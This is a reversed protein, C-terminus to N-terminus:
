GFINELIQWIKYYALNCNMFELYDTQSIEYYVKVQGTRPLKMDLKNENLWQLWAIHKYAYLVYCM